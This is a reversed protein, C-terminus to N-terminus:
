DRPQSSGRSYCIAGRELIRAQFIGHASSDPLNCDMPQLSDSQACCVYWLHSKAAMYSLIFPILFIHKRPKKPFPCHNHRSRHFPFCDLPPISSPIVWCLGDLWPLELGKLLEVSRGRFSQPLFSLFLSRSQPLISAQTVPVAPVEARVCTQSSSVAQAVMDAPDRSGSSGCRLHFSSAGM